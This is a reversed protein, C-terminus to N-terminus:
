DVIIRVERNALEGATGFILQTRKKMFEFGIKDSTDM